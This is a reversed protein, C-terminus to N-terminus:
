RSFLFGLILFLSTLLAIGVATRLVARGLRRDGRSSPGGETELLGGASPQLGSSLVAPGAARRYLERNTRGPGATPFRLGLHEGLRRLRDRAPPHACAVEAVAPDGADVRSQLRTLWASPASTDYGLAVLAELATRDAARERDTGHGLAMLDDAARTWATEGPDAAASNALSCLGLRTLGTRSDGAAVHALEHGLVFALEAEDDLSALCGTSVLVAGSPLALTRVGDEQFVAVVPGGPAGPIAAAVARVLRGLYDSRSPLEVFRLNASLAARVEYDAASAVDDGPLDDPLRNERCDACDTAAAPGSVVHVLGCSRCTGVAVRTGARRLTRLGCQDCRYISAGRFLHIRAPPLEGPSARCRDCGTHGAVLSLARAGDM